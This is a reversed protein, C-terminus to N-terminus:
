EQEKKDEEEETGMMDSFAMAVMAAYERRQEDPLKPIENKLEMMIAMAREFNDCQPDPNKLCSVMREIKKRVPDAGATLKTPWEVMELSELVKIGAPPEDEDLLSSRKNNEFFQHVDEAFKSIDVNIVEGFNDVEWDNLKEPIEQPDEEGVVRLLLRLECNQFGEAYPTVMDCYRASGVWMVVLPNEVEGLFVEVDAEFYKNKFHIVNEEPCLASFIDQAEGVDGIPVILVRNAM